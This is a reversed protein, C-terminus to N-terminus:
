SAHQGARGAVSRIRKAALPEVLETGHAACELKVRTHRSNEGFTVRGVRPLPQQREAVSLLLLLLGPRVGRARRRGDDRRGADPAQIFRRGAGLRARGCEM